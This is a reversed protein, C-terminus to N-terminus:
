LNAELSKAAQLHDAIMPRIQQLSDKLQANQANPILKKDFLDLAGQHEVVQADVYARDFDAGTKGRLSALTQQGDTKLALSQASDSPTINASKLTTGMQGAISSHASLMHQAFAKVKPNTAHAVAYRAQEIEGSNVDGACEAIQADSMTSAPENGSSPVTTGSMSSAGGLRDSTVADPPSPIPKSAAATPNAGTANEATLTANGAAVNENATGGGCAIAGIALAAVVAIPSASVCSSSCLISM